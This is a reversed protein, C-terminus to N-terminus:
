RYGAPKLYDAALYKSIFSDVGRSNAAADISWTLPEAQGGAVHGDNYLLNVDNNNHVFLERANNTFFAPDGFAAPQTWANNLVLPGFGSRHWDTLALSKTPELLETDKLMSIDNVGGPMGYTVQHSREPVAANYGSWDRIDTREYAPCSFVEANGGLYDSYFLHHWWATAGWTTQNPSQPAYFQTDSTDPQNPVTFGDGDHAYYAMALGIQKLNNKCTMSRAAARAAGLTPLLIGILLAIISIVVLLEILTFAPLRHGPRSVNM